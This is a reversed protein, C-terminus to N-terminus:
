EKGEKETKTKENRVLIYMEICMNYNFCGLKKKLIYTDMTYYFHLIYNMRKIINGQLWM